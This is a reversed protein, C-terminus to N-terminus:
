VKGLTGSKASPKKDPGRCVFDKGLATRKIAPARCVSETQRANEPRRVAFLSQKGHTKRGACPLAQDVGNLVPATLQKQKGHTTSFRVAFM